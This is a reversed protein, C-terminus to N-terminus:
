IQNTYMPIILLVIIGCTLDTIKSESPRSSAISKVFIEKRKKKDCTAGLSNSKVRLKNEQHM